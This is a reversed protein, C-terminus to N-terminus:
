DRTNLTLRGVDWAQIGDFLLLRGYWKNNNTNQKKKNKLTQKTNLLPGCYNAEMSFPLNFYKICNKKLLSILSYMGTQYNVYRYNKKEKM